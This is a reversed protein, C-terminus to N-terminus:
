VNSEHPPPVTPARDSADDEASPLQPVQATQETPFLSEYSLLPPMSPVQTNELHVPMSRQARTETLHLAQSLKFYAAEPPPIPPTFYPISPAGTYWMPTSAKQSAPRWRRVSLGVLVIGSTIWCTAGVIGLLVMAARLDTSFDEPRLRMGLAAIHIGFLAVYGLVIALASGGLLTGLGAGLMLQRRSM